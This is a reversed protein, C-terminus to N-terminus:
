HKYNSTASFVFASVGITLKDVKDWVTVNYM